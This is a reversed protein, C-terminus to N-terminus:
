SRETPSLFIHPKKTCYGYASFTVHNDCFCTNLSFEAFYRRKVVLSHLVFGEEFANALVQSRRTHTQRPITESTKPKPYKFPVGKISFKSIEILRATAAIGSPRGAITVIAKDM